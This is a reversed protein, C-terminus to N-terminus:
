DSKIFERQLTQERNYVVYFVFFRKRPVCQLACELEAMFAQLHKECQEFSQEEGLFKRMVRYLKFGDAGTGVGHTAFYNMEEESLAEVFDRLTLPGRAKSEAVYSYRVAPLKQESM